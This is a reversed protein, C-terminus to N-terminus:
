YCVATSKGDQKTAHTTKYLWSLALHYAHGINGVKGRKRPKKPGFVAMKAGFIGLIVRNKAWFQGNKARKTRSNM